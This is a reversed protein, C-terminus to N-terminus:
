LNIYNAKGKIIAQGIEIGKSVNKVQTYVVNVSCNWKSYEKCLLAARIITNKPPDNHKIIVYPSALKDLHFWWENQKAYTLIKWNDEKSQGVHIIIENEIFQRM